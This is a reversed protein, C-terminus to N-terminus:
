DDDDFGSATATERTDAEEGDDSDAFLAAEIGAATRAGIALMDEESLAGDDSSRNSSSDADDEFDMTERQGTAALDFDLEPLVSSASTKDDFAFDLRMGDADL